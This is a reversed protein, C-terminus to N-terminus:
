KKKKGVKTFVGYISYLAAFGVFGYIVRGATSAIGFVESVVDYDFMGVVGLHLGGIVMLVWSFYDVSNMKM